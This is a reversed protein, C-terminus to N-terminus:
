KHDGGTDPPYGYVIRQVLLRLREYLWKPLLRRAAGKGFAVTKRVLAPLLVVAVEM